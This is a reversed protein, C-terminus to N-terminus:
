GHAPTRLGIIAQAPQATPASRPQRREEERARKRRRVEGAFAFNVVLLVVSGGALYVAVNPREDFSTSAVVFAAAFNRQGTALSVTVRRSPDRGGLLWGAGIGIFALAVTAAISGTGFMGVVRGVNTTLLIALLLVLSLNAIRQVDPLVERSGGQYRAQAFLGLALPLLMQLSLSKAIAGASVEIGPLLLPLALPLFIVSGVILLVLLGVSLVLDGRAIETLKIVFPAGAVSGLLLIGIRHDPDGLARGLLYAAGPVVVFSALLALLVHRVNRLPRMIEGLTHSLGMAFMSSVVFTFTLADQLAQM